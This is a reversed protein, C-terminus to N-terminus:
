KNWPFGCKTKTQLEFFALITVEGSINLEEPWFWYFVPSNHSIVMGKFNNWASVSTGRRCTYFQTEKLPNCSVSAEIFKTLFLRGDERFTSPLIWTRAWAFGFKNLYSWFILCNSLWLSNCCNPFLFFGFCFLVGVALWFFGCFCPLVKRNTQKTGLSSVLDQHVESGAGM